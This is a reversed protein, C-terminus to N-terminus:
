GSSVPQTHPPCRVASRKSSLFRRRTPAICCAVGDPQASGRLPNTQGGSEQDWERTLGWLLTRSPGPLPVPEQSSYLFWFFFVGGFRPLHLCVRTLPPQSVRTKKLVPLANRQCRAQVSTGELEM